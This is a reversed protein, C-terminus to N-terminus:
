EGYRRRAAREFTTATADDINCLRIRTVTGPTGQARHLHYSEIVSLFVKACRDRPFGFIGSSIAPFSVSVLEHEDALKLASRIASALKADEDGSGWVPGVAHIVFRAPLHGGSTIAASGTKVPGRTTVWQRSEIDIAPGGRRAIAGAVGGGHALSENAANVIADVQEATLDGQVIELTLDNEYRHTFRVIPSTPLPM